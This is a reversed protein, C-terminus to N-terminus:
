DTSYVIGIANEPIDVNGFVRVVKLEKRIIEWTANSTTFHIFWKSTDAWGCNGVAIDTYIKHSNIVKLTNIVDQEEVVLHRRKTVIRDILSNM